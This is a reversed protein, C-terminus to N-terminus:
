LYILASWRSHCGERGATVCVFKYCLMFLKIEQETEISSALCVIDCVCARVWVCKVFSRYFKYGQTFKQARKRFVRKENWTSSLSLLGADADKASSMGEAFVKYVLLIAFVLRLYQMRPSRLNGGPCDWFAELLFIQQTFLLLCFHTSHSCNCTEQASILVVEIWL